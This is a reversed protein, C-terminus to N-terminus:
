TIVIALYAKYNVVALSVMPTSVFNKNILCEIGGHSLINAIEEQFMPGGFRCDFGIVVRKYARKQMWALTGVAIRRVNEVTYDKAIIARWGDTGFKISYVM